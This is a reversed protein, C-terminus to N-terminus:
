LKPRSGSGSDGWLNQQPPQVVDHVDPLTRDFPQVQAEFAKRVVERTSELQFRGRFGLMGQQDFLDLYGTCQPHQLAQVPRVPEDIHEAVDQFHRSRLCGLDEIHAGAQEPLTELVRTFGDQTESAAVATQSRIGGRARAVPLHRSRQPGAFYTLIGAIERSRGSGKLLRAIQDPLDILRAPRELHMAGAM